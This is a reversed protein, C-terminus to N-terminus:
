PHYDIEGSGYSENGHFDESQVNWWFYTYVYTWGIGLNDCESAPVQDFRVSDYTWVGNSVTDGVNGTQSAVQPGQQNLFEDDLRAVFGDSTRRCAYGYQGFMFVSKAGGADYTAAVALFTATPDNTFYSVGGPNFGLAVYKGQALDYVGSVAAPPTTDAVPIVVNSFYDCGAIPIAAFVALRGLFRIKPM